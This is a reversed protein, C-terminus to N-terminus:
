VLDLALNIDSQLVASESGPAAEVAKSVSDGGSLVLTSEPNVMQHMPASEFDAVLDPLVM